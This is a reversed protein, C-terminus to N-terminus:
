AGEADMRRELRGLLVLNTKISQVKAAADADDVAFFNLAWTSGAHRFEACYETQARLAEIFPAM